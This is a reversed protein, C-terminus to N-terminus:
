AFVPIDPAMGARQYGRQIQGPHVTYTRKAWEGKKTERRVEYAERLDGYADRSCWVRHIYAKAFSDGWVVLVVEGAKYPAAERVAKMSTLDISYDVTMNWLYRHPSICYNAVSPLIPLSSPKTM